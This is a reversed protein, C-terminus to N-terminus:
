LFYLSPLNSFIGPLLENIKNQWLGRRSIFANTFLKHIAAFPCYVVLMRGFTWFGIEVESYPVFWAKCVHSKFTMEGKNEVSNFM